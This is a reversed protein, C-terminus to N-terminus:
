KVNGAAPSLSESPLPGITCSSGLRHGFERFFSVPVRWVSERGFSMKGAGVGSLVSPHLPGRWRWRMGAENIGKMNGATDGLWRKEAENNRGPLFLGLDPM